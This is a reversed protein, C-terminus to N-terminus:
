KKYSDLMTCIKCKEKEEDEGKGKKGPRRDALKIKKAEICEDNDHYVDNHYVQISYFPEIQAM